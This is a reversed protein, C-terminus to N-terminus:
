ALSIRGPQLTLSLHYQNERKVGVLFAFLQMECFTLVNKKRSHSLSRFVSNALEKKRKWMRGIKKKTGFRDQINTYIDTLRTGGEVSHCCRMRMAVSLVIFMYVFVVVSCLLSWNFNICVWFKLSCRIFVNASPNHIHTDTHTHTHSIVHVSETGHQM